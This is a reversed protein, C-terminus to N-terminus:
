IKLQLTVKSINYLNNSYYLQYYVIKFIMGKLYIGINLLIKNKLHLTYIIYLKLDPNWISIILKLTYYHLEYLM